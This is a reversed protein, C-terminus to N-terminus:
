LHNTIKQSTSTYYRSRVSIRGHSGHKIPTITAWGSLTYLYPEWGDKTERSKLFFEVLFELYDRRATDLINVKLPDFNFVKFDTVHYDKEENEILHFFKYQSQTNSVVQFPAQWATHFRTPPRQSRTAGRYKVLVFAGPQFKTPAVKFRPIIHNTDDIIFIARAKHMVKGQIKLIRCATVSLPQNSDQREVDDLIIGRDLQLTNVSLM